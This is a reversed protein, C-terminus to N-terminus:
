SSSTGSDIMRPALRIPPPLTPTEDTAATKRDFIGSGIAPVRSRRSSPWERRQIM